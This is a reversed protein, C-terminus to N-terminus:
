KFMTYKTRLADHMTQIDENEIFNLQERLIFLNQSIYRFIVYFSVSYNLLLLVQNVFWITFYIEILLEEM